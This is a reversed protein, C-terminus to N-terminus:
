MQDAHPKLAHCALSPQPRRASGAGHWHLDDSVRLSSLRWARM